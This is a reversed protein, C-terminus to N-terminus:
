AHQPTMLRVTDAHGSNCPCSWYFEARIGILWDKAFDAGEALPHMRDPDTVVKAVVYMNSDPLGGLIEGYEEQTVFLGMALLINKM